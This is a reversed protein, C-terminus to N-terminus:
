VHHRIREAIEHVSERPVNRVVSHISGGGDHLWRPIVHVHLHDITQGSVTGHNIGITFGSPALVALLLGTVHKVAGFLGQLSTDPVELITAAHVRPLVMVHGPAVPHIDLLAIVTDDEYIIEASIEKKIIRCFLCDM